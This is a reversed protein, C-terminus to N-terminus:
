GAALPLGTVESLHAAFTSAEPCPGDISGTYFWQVPLFRGSTEVLGVTWFSDESTPRHRRQVAVFADQSYERWWIPVFGLFRWRRIVRLPKDHFVTEGFTLCFLTVFTAFAFWLVAPFGSIGAVWFFYSLGIAVVAGFLQRGVGAGYRIRKKPSTTSHTM